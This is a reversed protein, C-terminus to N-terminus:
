ITLAAPHESRSTPAHRQLIFNLGEDLRENTGCHYAYASTLHEDMPSFFRVLSDSGALFSGVPGVIARWPSYRPDSKLQLRANLFGGRKLAVALAASRETSITPDRESFFDLSIPSPELPLELTPTNANLYRVNKRVLQRSGRDRVMHIFATPPFPRGDAASLMHSPVGMVVSIIGDPYLGHMPMNDLNACVHQLAHRIREMECMLGHAMCMERQRNEVPMYYCRPCSVSPAFSNIATGCCGHISLVLGRVPGSPRQWIIEGVGALHESVAVTSPETSSTASAVTALAVLWAACARRLAM